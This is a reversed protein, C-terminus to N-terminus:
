DNSVKYSPLCSPHNIDMGKFIFTGNNTFVNKNHKQVLKNTYLLHPVILVIPPQQYCMSNIFQIDKINKIMIHFKNLTQILIM